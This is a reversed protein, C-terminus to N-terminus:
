LSFSAAVSPGAGYLEPPTPSAKALYIAYCAFLSGIVGIATLIVALRGGNISAM